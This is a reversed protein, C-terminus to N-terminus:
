GYSKHERVDAPNISKIQGLTALIVARNPNAKYGGTEFREEKEM